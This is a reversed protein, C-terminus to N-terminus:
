LLWWFLVALLSTVAFYAASMWALDKDADRLSTRLSLASFVAVLLFVMLCFLYLVDASIPYYRDVGREPEKKRRKRCSIIGSFLHPTDQPGRKM